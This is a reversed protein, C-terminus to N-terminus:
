KGIAGFVKQLLGPSIVFAPGLLFLYTWGSGGNSWPSFYAPDSPAGQVVGAWGGAHAFAAPVAIAFGALLVALQLMNVWASSLLGGASFYLTVVAGGLVCGVWKPVGAVVTLIRRM